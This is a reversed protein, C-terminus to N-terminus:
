FLKGARLSGCSGGVLCTRASGIAVAVGVIVKCFAQRVTPAGFETAISYALDNPQLSFVYTHVTGATDTVYVSLRNSRMLVAMLERTAWPDTTINKHDILASPLLIPDSQDLQVTVHGREWLPYPFQDLHIISVSIRAASCGLVLFV